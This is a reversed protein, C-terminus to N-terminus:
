HMMIIYGSRFCGMIHYFRGQLAEQLKYGITTRWASNLLYGSWTFNEHITRYGLVLRWEPIPINSVKKIRRSLFIYSVFNHFNERESTAYFMFKSIVFFMFKLMVCFNSDKLNDKSPRHPRKINWYKGHHTCFVHTILISDCAFKEGKRSDTM